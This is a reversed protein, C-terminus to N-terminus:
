IIDSIYIWWTSLFFIPVFHIPPLPYNGVGFLSIQNPGQLSEQNPRPRFQVAYINKSISKLNIRNLREYNIM